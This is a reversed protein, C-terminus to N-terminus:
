QKDGTPTILVESLHGHKLEFICNMKHLTSQRHTIMIVTPVLTLVEDLLQDVMKRDLSSTTEDLIIVSPHKQLAKNLLYRQHEGGSLAKTQLHIGHAHPHLELDRVVQDQPIYCMVSGLANLDIRGLPDKGYLAQGETPLLVGAIIQCLTSKGAGNPGFIGIKDGPNITMNVSQFVPPKGPYAFSVNHLHIPQQSTDKLVLSRDESTLNFITLTKTLDVIGGFFRTMNRSIELLPAYMSAILGYILVLKDLGILGNAYRVIIVCFVVGASIYFIVDQLLHLVYLTINHKEWAKAELDFLTTLQSTKSQLNFRVSSTNYLSYGMATAVTDSLHWGKTKAKIYYRLCLAAACLGFYAGVVIGFCLFDATILAISLSLVKSFSPFISIFSVRMFQRVSQSVRTTANIIEQVNYAELDLLSITHTKLITRLRIDKIAQNTVTFFTMERLHPSIKKILWVSFLAASSSIFWSVPITHINAAVIRKWMYPFYTTAAIDVGILGITLLSARRCKSTQWLYPLLLKYIQIIKNM